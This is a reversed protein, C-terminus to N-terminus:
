LVGLVLRLRFKSKAIRIQLSKLEFDRKMKEFEADLVENRSGVGQLFRRDAVRLTELTADMQRQKVQLQFELDGLRNLAVVVQREIEHEFDRILRDVADAKRLLSESQHYKRGGDFANWTAALSLSGVGEPSVFRNDQFAFEGFLGVHPLREADLSKAAMRLSEREAQLEPLEPRNRISIEVLEALDRSPVHPDDFGRLLLPDSMRRNLIRNLSARASDLNLRASRIRREFDLVQANEAFLADRTATGNKQENRIENLHLQRNRAFRTAFRVEDQALLLDLYSEIVNIKLEAQAHNYRWRAKSLQLKSAEISRSIAGGTYIPLSIRSRASLSEEEAQPIDIRSFLTGFRSGLNLAPGDNLVTYGTELDLSPLRLTEAAKSDHEAALQELQIARLQQNDRLSLAIAQEISIEFANISVEAQPLRRLPDAALPWSTTMLGIAIMSPLLGSKLSLM